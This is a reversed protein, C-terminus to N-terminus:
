VRQPKEVILCAPQVVHAVVQAVGGNSQAIVRLVRLPDALHLSEVDLKAIIRLDFVGFDKGAIAVGLAALQPLHEIGGALDQTAEGVHRLAVEIAM